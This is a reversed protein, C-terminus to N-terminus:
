KVEMHLTAIDAVLPLVNEAVTIKVTDKITKM